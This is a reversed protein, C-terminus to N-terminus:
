SKFRNALAAALVTAQVWGLVIAIWRVSALLGYSDLIWTWHVLYGRGFSVPRHSPDPAWKDDQGLKVLPLENELSYILPNFRPYAVPFPQGKAWASYSDKERPAIGGNSGAWWFLATTVVLISGISWAIRFPQERLWAFVRRAVRVPWLSTEARCCALRYVIHRAAQDDGLALAIKALQMWPQSERVRKPKQLNIWDIRNKANFPTRDTLEGRPAPSSASDEHLTLQEYVFGDLELNGPKPWSAKQDRFGKVKVGVLSLRSQAPTKVDVWMLDSDVVMNHCILSGFEANICEMNGLIHAGPLRIEGLCSFDQSLSLDGNV